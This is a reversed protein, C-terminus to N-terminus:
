YLRVFGFTCRGDKRRVLVKGAFDDDHFKVEKAKFTLILDNGDTRNAVPRAGRGYDVESPSGFRLTSLDLDRLPLFNEEARVRVEIKSGKWKGNDKKWQGNQALQILILLTEALYSQRKLFLSKIINENRESILVIKFIARIFVDTTYHDIVLTFDKGM